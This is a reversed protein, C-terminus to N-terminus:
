GEAYLLEVGPDTPLLLRRKPLAPALPEGGAVKRMEISSAAPSDADWTIEGALTKKNERLEELMTPRDKGLLDIAEQYKDLHKKAEKRAKRIARVNEETIGSDKFQSEAEYLFEGSLNFIYAMGIDDINVRLEVQDGVIGQMEKTFYSNGGDEIGNRGVTKVVRRTWVYKAFDAPIDRRTHLNENFVEDPTKNNMGDGSHRWKGNYWEVYKAFLERTEELTPLEEIPRKPAGDFSGVYTRSVDHRDSTNSGLYSEFSKDFSQAFFGFAKEIHKSQGHYAETFHSAMGLDDTICSMMTRERKGFTNHQENWADGTFWYSTFDKGNDFQGSDPCGYKEVMMRTARIITVTSPTEDIWWGLIKRSRKDLICTLVLRVRHWGDAKEIRSAFDLTKHDYVAMQMSYYRSYDIKIYSEYHDHFYKAGKRFYDKVSRPIEHQIYRYVVPESTVIKEKEELSRIVQAVSLKNKHLYYFWILEKTQKDLSAGHGGRDKYQPLLGAVDHNQYKALWNYLTAQCITKGGLEARIDAAIKGANYECLFETASMESDDWARIIKARLNAIRRKNSDASEMPIIQGDGGSRASHNVLVVKKNYQEKPALQNQLEQLPIALSAAYAAQVDEPLSIVQYIKHTGGRGKETRSHWNGDDADRNVVRKDKGLIDAIEKATLWKSIM